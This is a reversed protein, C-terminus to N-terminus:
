PRQPMGYHVSYAIFFLFFFFFNGLADPGDFTKESDSEGERDDDMGGDGSKERNCSGM